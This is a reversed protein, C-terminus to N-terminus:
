RHQQGERRDEWRGGEQRWGEGDRLWAHSVWVHGPRPAVWRGPVWDYRAGGWNWYGAIWLYGTAPPRGPHELLVVPPASQAVSAGAGGVPAGAVGGPSSPAGVCAALLMSSGLLLFPKLM